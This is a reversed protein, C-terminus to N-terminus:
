LLEISVNHKESAGSSGSHRQKGEVSDWAQSPQASKALSEQDGEVPHTKVGM